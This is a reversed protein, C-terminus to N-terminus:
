VQQALQGAQDVHLNLIMGRVVGESRARCLTSLITFLCICLTTCIHNHDTTLLGAELIYFMSFINLVSYLYHQMM